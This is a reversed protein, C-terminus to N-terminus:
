KNKLPNVTLRILKVDKYTDNFIKSNTQTAKSSDFTKIGVRLM